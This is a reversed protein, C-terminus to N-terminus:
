ASAGGIDLEVMMRYGATLKSTVRANGDFIFRTSSATNDVGPLFQQGRSGLAAQAPGPTGSKPGGNDIWLIAKNVQGSITLSVKRNVKRATTAELESVREELDACCNGGLEAAKSTGVVMHMVAAAAVAFRTFRRWM